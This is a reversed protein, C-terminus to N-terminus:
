DEIPTLAIMIDGSNSVWVEITDGINNLYRM